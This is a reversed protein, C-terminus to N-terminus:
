QISYPSKAQPFHTIHQIRTGIVLTAMHLYFGFHVLLPQQKQSLRFRNGKRSDQMWEMSLFHIITNINVNHNYM